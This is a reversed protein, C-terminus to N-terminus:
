DLHFPVNSRQVELIKSPLTEYTKKLTEFISPLISRCRAIHAKCGDVAEEAIECSAERVSQLLALLDKANGKFSCALARHLIQFVVLDLRNQGGQDFSM